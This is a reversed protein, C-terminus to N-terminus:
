GGALLGVGSTLGPPQLRKPSGVILPVRNRNQPLGEGCGARRYEPLGCHLDVRLPHDSTVILVFEDGFRTQLREVVRGVLEASDIINARYEALLSGSPKDAPPHPLPLHAYLLGGREWFPAALLARELSKRWGPMGTGAEPDQMRCWDGLLPAQISCALSVLAPAIPEGRIAECSRLGQISCYMGVFSVIDVPRRVVLRSYDLAIGQSCQLAPGCPMVRDFRRGSLMAPVANMTHEGAALLTSFHVSAVRDRLVQVIPEASEPSLEDLLLVAVNRPADAQRALFALEFVPGGSTRLMSGVLPFSAFFILGFAIAARHLRNWPAAAWHRAAFLAAGLGAAALAARTLPSVADTGWLYPRTVRLLLFMLCLLLAVRLVFTAGKLVRPLLSGLLVVLLIAVAFALGTQGYSYNRTFVQLWFWQSGIAM